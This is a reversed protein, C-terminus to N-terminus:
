ENFFNTHPAGMGRMGLEYHSSWRCQPDSCGCCRNKFLNFARGLFSKVFRYSTTMYTFTIDYLVKSGKHWPLQGFQM